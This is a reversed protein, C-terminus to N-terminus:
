ASLTRLPTPALPASPVAPRRFQSLTKPLQLQAAYLRRVTCTCIAGSVTKKAVIRFRREEGGVDRLLIRVVWLDGPM